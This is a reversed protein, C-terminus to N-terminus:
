RTCSYKVPYNVYFKRGHQKVLTCGVFLFRGKMKRRGCVTKVQSIARKKAQRCAKPYKIDSSQGVLTSAWRDRKQAFLNPSFMLISTLLILIYKSM